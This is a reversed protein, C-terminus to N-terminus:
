PQTHFNLDQETKLVCTLLDKGRISLNPLRKCGCFNFFSIKRIVSMEAERKRERDRKRWRERKRDRERERERERERKREKEREREREKKREHGTERIM